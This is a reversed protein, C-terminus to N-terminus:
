GSSRPPRAAHTSGRGPSSGSSRTASSRDRDPVAPRTTGRSCRPRCTACTSSTPARPPRASSPSSSAVNGPWAHGRLAQAAAPHARRRPRPGPPRRPPRAPPRRRPARAAAAGPRRHRGAAALPAPIDEFREATMAFPLTPTAPGPAAQAHSSSTACGSPRGPPCRTSTASWWPPTPSASSRRGCRCGPRSTRRRRAHRGVPDPRAPPRPAAGARAPHGPRVGPEGVAAVVRGARSRPAPAALADTWAPSLDRLTGSGPELRPARGPVGRRAPRARPPQGRSRALMLAATNSPRPSPSRSCCTAPRGRGPPSTSAARSGAPSAPRARPRRRLHLHVPEALLAREARVVTPVRDALALGLGNTGAEREAYSFGPALHVADLARLLSTDGSLRNLVLGDADTLMLSIPEDALTATCTPSCRAAASSSCRSRTTAHRLVGTSPRSRSATTRAASGRPWSGTPSPPRASRPRRASSRAAPAPRGRARAPDDGM